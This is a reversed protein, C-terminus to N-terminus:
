HPSTTTGTRGTAARLTAPDHRIRCLYFLLDLLWCTALSIVLLPVVDAEDFFGGAASLHASAALGVLMAVPWRWAAWRSMLTLLASACILLPILVCDGARHSDVIPILAGAALAALLIHADFFLRRLFIRGSAFVAGMVFARRQPGPVVACEAFMARMLDRDRQQAFQDALWRMM